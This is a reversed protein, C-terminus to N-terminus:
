AARLVESDKCSLCQGCPIKRGVECSYTLEIPIQEKVCFEWIDKKTWGIFPAAVRCVGDSYIDFIRQMSHVFNATCDGYATGAHTGIAFVNARDSFEMLATLLLFANRGQILGSSKSHAGHLRLTHKSVRFHDAIASSAAGEQTAASQGYDIHLAHILYGRGQYFAICAASDLGGSLLVCVSRKDQRTKSQDM